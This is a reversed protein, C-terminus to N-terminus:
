KAARRKKPKALKVVKAKGDSDGDDKVEILGEDYSDIEDEEIKHTPFSIYDIDGPNLFMTYHYGIAPIRIMGEHDEGSYRYDQDELQEWCEFLDCETFGIERRKGTSLQITVTHSLAFIEETDAARAAKEAELDDPKVRGDAVLKDWQEDTILIMREVREVDEKAFDSYDAGGGESDSWIEEVIAWDRTDPMQIPTALKYSKHEEEPGYWDHAESAFYFESIAERRIAVSRNGLDRFTIFQRNTQLQSYAEERAAESISLVM